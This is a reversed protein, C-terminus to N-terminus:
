CASVIGSFNVRSEVRRIEFIRVLVKVRIHFLKGSILMSSRRNWLRNWWCEESRTCNKDHGSVRLTGRPATVLANEKDRKIQLLHEKRKELLTKIQEIKMQEM